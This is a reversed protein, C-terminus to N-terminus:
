PCNQALGLGVRSTKDDLQEPIVHMVGRTGDLYCFKCIVECRLALKCWDVMDLGLWTNHRLYMDRWGLVTTKANKNNRVIAEKPVKLFTHILTKSNIPRQDFTSAPEALLAKFSPWNTTAADSWQKIQLPTPAAM